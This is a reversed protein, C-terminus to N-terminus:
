FFIVLTIIIRKKKPKTPTKYKLLGNGLAVVDSSVEEVPGFLNKPSSRSPTTVNSSTGAISFFLYLSFSGGSSGLSSDPTSTSDCINWNKSFRLAFTKGNSVWKVSNWYADDNRNYKHYSLNIESYLSFLFRLNIVQTKSLHM